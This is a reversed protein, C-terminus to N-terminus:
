AAGRQYQTIAIWATRLHSDAWGALALVRVAPVVCPVTFELSQGAPDIHGSRDM